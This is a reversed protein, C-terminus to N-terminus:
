DGALCEPRPRSGIAQTRFRSASAFAVMASQHLVDRTATDPISGIWDPDLEVLFPECVPLGLDGALCAALAENALGEVGLEPRGSMKLFAEHEQGDSTEIVIRLPKTRGSTAIRDYRIPVAHRIM